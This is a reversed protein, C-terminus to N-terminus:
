SACWHQIARAYLDTGRNLQDLSIWEDKTHAQAIDGPGCVVIRNLERFVAADTGFCVTKSRANGTLTLMDRVVPADDAILFPPERFFIDFSLGNAAAAQQVREVLPEVQMGPMPRFYVTCVSRAAKVNIARNGDNVGINWSLTPPDFRTDHWAPNRETEDHLAKMEALFPIMALNANLGDASSSHAAQGQSVIRM